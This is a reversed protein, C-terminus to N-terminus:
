SELIRNSARLMWLYQFILSITASILYYYIGKIEPFVNAGLALLIALVIISILTAKTAERTKHKKLLIAYPLSAIIRFTPFLIGLAFSFKAVELYEGKLGLMRTLFIDSTVPM